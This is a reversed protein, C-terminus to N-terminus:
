AQQQLIKNGIACQLCLRHNCYDNKLRILAQSDFANKNEIGLQQFGKTINNKEASTKELWQLAKNKLMENKNFHGYAYLIPVVTNIIINQIMQKGLTKKKFNAPMDPVYHYNWYDNATISLLKIVDEMNNAEKIKSFLHLSDHILAALQVLRITPFNAPRMRLFHLTIHIQPLHYKKQLFIYERQLMQPYDETFDKNLLGAQGLLLAELQHIQNKHKALINLPLSQAIAEFADCNVKIGFNRALMWWFTEEWHQKNSQLMKKIAAAKLELREAVLRDKWSVLTIAPTHIIHAQCPIFNQQQMLEEYRKLLINSVRYQLELTPFPLNLEVDNKWVVHLIVNDYNKD